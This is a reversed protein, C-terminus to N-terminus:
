KELQSLYVVKDGANVAYKPLVIRVMARVPSQLRDIIEGQFDIVEALTQEAEVRDGPKVHLRLIGGKSVGLRIKEGKFIMQSTPPNPKTEIMGLHAMINRIGRMHVEVDAELLRGLGGSEAVIGPIGRLASEHTLAGPRHVEDVIPVGYTRAMHESKQDVEKNGTRSFITYPSLDEPLDGSHLDIIYDANVAVKGFYAYAIRQSATGTEVGPFQRNINLGDIPCIYPTRSEFAAVNLVPVCIVAGHLTKPHTERFTRVAAEIGAYECGHVGASVLLVPGDETGNVIEVQISLHSVSEEVVELCTSAKSGPHVTTKCITIPQKM